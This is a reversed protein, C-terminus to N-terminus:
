ESVGCEPCADGTKQGSWDDAYDCVECKVRQYNYVSCEARYTGTFTVILPPNNFPCVRRPRAVTMIDGCVDCSCTWTVTVTGLHVQSPESM